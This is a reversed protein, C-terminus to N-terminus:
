TKVFEQVGARQRAPHRGGVHLDSMLLVVRIRLAEKLKGRDRNM